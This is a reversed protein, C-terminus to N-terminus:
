SVIPGVAGDAYQVSYHSHYWSSGYQTVKWKYTFRGGPPIACQTVGNVGDMQTSLFQRIGHWHISTGNHKMNNIVTVEMTDGWCAQLWPGPYSGNFMKALTFNRGDANYWGDEVTVTYQRLIGVPVKDEYNTNIDFREKTRPNMLWCSRDEPHSCSVWDPMNTYNCRFGTGDDRPNAPPKFIPGGGTASLAPQLPVQQSGNGLPSLTAFNLVRTATIWFWSSWAM